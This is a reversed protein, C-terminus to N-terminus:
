FLETAENWASVIVTSGKIIIYEHRQQLATTSGDNVVCGCVCAFSM